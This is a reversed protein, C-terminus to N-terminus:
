SEEELRAGCELCDYREAVFNWATNWTGCRDCQRM